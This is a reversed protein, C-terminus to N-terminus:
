TALSSSSHLTRTLSTSVCVFRNEQSHWLTWRFVLRCWWRLGQFAPLLNRSEQTLRDRHNLSPRGISHRHTLLAAVQFRRGLFQIGPKPPFGALRHMNRRLVGIKSCFQLAPEGEKSALLLLTFSRHQRLFCPTLCPRILFDGSSQPAGSASSFRARMRAFPEISHRAGNVLAPVRWQWVDCRCGDIRSETRAMRWLSGDHRTRRGGNGPEHESDM